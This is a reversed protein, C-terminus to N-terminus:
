IDRSRPFFRVFHIMAWSSLVWSKFVRRTAMCSGIRSITRVTAFSFWNTSPQSRGFGVLVHGFSIMERLRCVSWSRLTSILYGLGRDGCIKALVGGFPCQHITAAGNLIGATSPRLHIMLRRTVRPHYPVQWDRPCM